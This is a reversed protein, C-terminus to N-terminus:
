NRRNALEKSVTDHVKTKKGSRSVRYDQESEDNRLRKDAAYTEISQKNFVSPSKMVLYTDKNRRDVYDPCKWFSHHGKTGKCIKCEHQCQHATHGYDQCNFCQQNKNKTLQELGGNEVFLTFNQFSKTLEEIKRDVDEVKVENKDVKTPKVKKAQNRTKEKVMVDKIDKTNRNKKKIIIEDESDDESVEEYMNSESDSEEEECERIATVQAESLTKPVHQKILMRVTAPRVGNIFTDMLVSSSIENWDKKVKRQRNYVGVLHDFRDVYQRMTENSKKKISLIASLVNNIKIKDKQFRETFEAKFEGWDEFTHDYFWDLHSDSKIYGPILKLKNDDPVGAVDMNSEYIKLWRAPDSSREFGPIKIVNNAM